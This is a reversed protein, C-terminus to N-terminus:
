SFPVTLRAVSVRYGLLRQLVSFLLICWCVLTHAASPLVNGAYWTDPFVNIQELLLAVDPVAAAAPTVVLKLKFYGLIM